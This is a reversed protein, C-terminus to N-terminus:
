TIISNKLKHLSLLFFYVVQEFNEEASM